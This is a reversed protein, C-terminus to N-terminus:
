QSHTSPSILSIYFVITLTASLSFLLPGFVIRHQISFPIPGSEVRRKIVWGAAEMATELVTIRVCFAMSSRSLPWILQGRTRSQGLGIRTHPVVRPSMSAHTQLGAGIDSRCPCDLSGITATLSVPIAAPLLCSQNSEGRAEPTM